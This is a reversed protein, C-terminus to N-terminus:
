QSRCRRESNGSLWSQSLASFASTESGTCFAAKWNLCLVHDGAASEAGICGLIIM